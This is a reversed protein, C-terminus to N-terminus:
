HNGKQLAMQENLGLEIRYSQATLQGDWAQFDATDTDSGGYLSDNGLGGDFLDNQDGGHLQDAGNGGRLTDAEGLGSLTDNGNGGRLENRQENGILMDASSSGIIGEISILTDGGAHGGTQAPTYGPRPLSVNVAGSSEYSAFDFGSGGDLTDGGARGELIDNGGDGSLVEAVSTSNTGRLVDAFGSGRVGEISILTDYAADGYLQTARLLDVDVGLTGGNLGASTAYSAVDHGSGGDLTDAGGRGELVDNNSMGRLVNARFDGYFEDRYEGGTINEVRAVTLGGGTPTEGTGTELDLLNTPLSTPPVGGQWVHSQYTFDITDNDEGGDVAAHGNSFVDVYLLDNGGDGSLFGGDDFQADTVAAIALNVTDGPGHKLFLSDNGSGGYVDDWGTGGALTDNGSGGYLDDEGGEGWLKDNNAGGDIYDNGGSGWIRDDGGQGYVVDDIDFYGRWEDNGSTLVKAVM